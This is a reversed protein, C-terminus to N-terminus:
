GKELLTELRCLLSHREEDSIIDCDLLRGCELGSLVLYTMLVLNRDTANELMRDLVTRHYHRVPIMFDPNEVLAALIGSAPPEDDAQVRFVDFFARAIRNKDGSQLREQVEMAHEHVKMYEEVVAELLKAKTPFSYLLGGKSLGARAAVAELSIHAPGVEQALEVAARLIRERSSVKKKIHM